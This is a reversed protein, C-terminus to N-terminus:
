RTLASAAQGSTEIASAAERRASEARALNLALLKELAEETSIDEPWGHAGAVARDLAEHADPGLVRHNAGGRISNTAVLGVRQAHGVRMAEWAKAFWYCVFDAEAPVRGKYISFLADVYDDGLGAGSAGVAEGEDQPAPSAQTEFSPGSRAARTTRSSRQATEEGLPSQIKSKKSRRGQRMVKGGLFPPNGIIFDAEPWQAEVFSGDPKQELVADRCEIQDLKRLVPEPRTYIAHKLGWQIDGIWITTRAGEGAWLGGNGSSSSPDGGGSPSERGEDSREKRRWHPVSAARKADRGECSSAIKM